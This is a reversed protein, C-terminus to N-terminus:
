LPDSSSYNFYHLLKEEELRKKVLPYLTIEEDEILIKELGMETLKDLLQKKDKKITVFAINFNM